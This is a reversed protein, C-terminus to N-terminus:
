GGSVALIVQVLSREDVSTDMSALEGDVFIKLHERIAGDFVLRDRMGPAQADLAAIMERVTAGPLTMRRPTGPFLTTLAAPLRVEAM